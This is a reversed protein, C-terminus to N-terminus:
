NFESRNLRAFTDGGESVGEASDGVRSSMEVNVASPVPIGRLGTHGPQCLITGRLLTWINNGLLDLPTKPVIPPGAPVKYLDVRARCGTTVDRVFAFRSEHDDPRFIRVKPFLVGTRGPLM